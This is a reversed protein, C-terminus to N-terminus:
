SKWNWRLPLVAFKRQTGSLLNEKPKLGNRLLASHEFEGIVETPMCEEASPAVLKEAFNVYSLTAISPYKQRHAGRGLLQTGFPGSPSGRFKCMRSISGPSKRDTGFSKTQYALRQYKYPQCRNPNACELVELAESTPEIGVGRVFRM